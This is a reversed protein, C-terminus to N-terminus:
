HPLGRSEAFTKVGMACVHRVLLRRFSGPDEGPESGAARTDRLLPHRENPARAHFGPAFIRATGHVVGSGQGLAAPVAAAVEPALCAVHALGRVALALGGPDVGFHRSMAKHTLAIIPLNRRESLVHACFADLHALESVNRPEGLVAYSGDDLALQEVWAGLVRPPAVVLPAHSVESCATQVSVVDAHGNDSVQARTTWLRQSRKETHMVALTWTAGDRSTTVQLAHDHMGRELHSQEMDRALPLLRPWKAGVWEWVLERALKRNRSSHADCALSSRVVTHLQGAPKAASIGSPSHLTHPQLM